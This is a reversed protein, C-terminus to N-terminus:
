IVFSSVDVNVISVGELTVLRRFREGGGIGDRDVRVVTSGQGDDILQVFKTFRELSSGDGFGNRLLRAIHIQDEGVVFDLISDGRENLNKYRYQDNGAGGMLEDKGRGGILCDNGANGKLTDNGKGGNLLDDGNKGAVNDRGAGAFVRDNGGRARVTDNDGRARILDDKRTGSITEKGLTGIIRDGRNNRRRFTDPKPLPQLALREVQVYDVEYFFIQNNAREGVPLFSGDFAEPFGDEGHDAAWINFRVDMPEDPVTVKADIDPSPLPEERILQFTEFNVIGDQKVYWLVREPYWEMRLTVWERLDVGPLNDFESDGPGLPDDDYANTLIQQTGTSSLADDIQNTLLEFTLEDHIGERNRSGDANPDQIQFTFFSTVIGRQIPEPVRVRAEFALGQGPLLADTFGFTQQTIIESGFFKPEQNSERELVPNFTDLQLRVVGGAVSPPPDDMGGENDNTSRFQTRGIFTPNPDGKEPEPNPFEPIRWATLDLSTGNFDDRLIPAFRTEVM